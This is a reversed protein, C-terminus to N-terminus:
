EDTRKIVESINIGLAMCKYVLYNRVRNMKARDLTWQMEEWKDYDIEAICERLDDVNKAEKIRIM